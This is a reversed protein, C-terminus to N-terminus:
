LPPAAREPPQLLAQLRAATEANAEDDDRLSGNPIRVAAASAMTEM